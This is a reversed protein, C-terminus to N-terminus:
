CVIALDDTCHDKNNRAYKAVANTLYWRFGTFFFIEKTLSRSDWNISFQKKCCFGLSDSAIHSLTRGRFKGCHCFRGECDAGSVCDSNNVCIELHKVETSLFMFVFM